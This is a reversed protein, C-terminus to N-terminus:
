KVGVYVDVQSTQPDAARQDYVEYDARYARAGGLQHEDELSWIQLWAAPVVKGVPGKDTTIVTYEGAPIKRLVLGAPVTANPNVKMGIVFSYEGNRDSAYDTYVAYITDDVKGPIKQQIGDQFFKQWQGPIAGAGSMEKANTTRVAIGVVQFGEQRVKKPMKTEGPMAMTALVLALALIHLRM